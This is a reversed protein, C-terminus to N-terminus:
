LFHCSGWNMIEINITSKYKCIISVRRHGFFVGNFSFYILLGGYQHTEDSRGLRFHFGPFVEVLQCKQGFCGTCDGFLCKKLPQIIGVRFCENSRTFQLFYFGIHYFMINTNDDKVVFKRGFLDPINFIFQNVFIRISGVQHFNQVTGVKYQIYKGFPRLSGISFSLYLQRLVLVQQWAEGSQPSVEFTLTSTTDSAVSRTFCLQFGVTSNNESFNCQEFFIQLGNVSM